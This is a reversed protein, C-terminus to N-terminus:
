KNFKSRIEALKDQLASISGIREGMSFRIRHSGRESYLTIWEDCGDVCINCTNYNLKQFEEYNVSQKISDLEAGSLAITKNIKPERSQAPILFLYKISNTTIILSDEGAGWGCAYGASIILSDSSGSEMNKKNCGSIFTLMIIIPILNKM